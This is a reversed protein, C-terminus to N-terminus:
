REGRAIQVQSELEVALKRIGPEGLPELWRLAEELVRRQHQQWNPKGVVSGLEGAYYGGRPPRPRELLERQVGITITPIRAREIARAALVCSQHCLESAPILLAAQVEYHKLREILKPV